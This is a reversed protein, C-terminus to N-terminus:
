GTGSALYILYAVGTGLGAAVVIVRLRGRRRAYKQRLDRAELPRRPPSAVESEMEPTHFQHLTLGRFGCTGCAYRRLPTWKRVVQAWGLPTHSRRVRRSGCRGCRVSHGMM